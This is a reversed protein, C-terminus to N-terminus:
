RTAQGSSRGGRRARGRSGSHGIRGASVGSVARRCRAVRGPRAGPAGVARARHVGRGRSGRDEAASLVDAAREVDATREELAAQGKQQTALHAAHDTHAQVAKELASRPALAVLAKAAEAEAVAAREAEAEADALAVHAARSAGDSGIQEPAIVCALLDAEEHAKTAETVAAAEAHRLEDLEPGVAEMETRLETLRNVRDEAATLAEPTAFALKDLLTAAVSARQRATQERENARRAMRQYLGLDLLSVLLKQREKDAAQLFRAFEGQPLVVCTTFHDYRLGLLREVEGTLERENGALVAGDSGELRAEKTTAGTKTRRVVRVASYEDGGITFDLQVRAENRGLSIIPAVARQDLRPVCGYLAFVM